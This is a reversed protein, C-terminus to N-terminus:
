TAEESIPATDEADEHDGDESNRGEPDEGEPPTLDVVFGSRHM